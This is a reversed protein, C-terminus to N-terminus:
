VNVLPHARLRDQVARSAGVPSPVEKGVGFQLVALRDLEVLVIDVPRVPEDEAVAQLHHRGQGGALVERALDLHDVHIRRVPDLERAVELRQDALPIHLVLLLVERALRLHDLRIPVRPM